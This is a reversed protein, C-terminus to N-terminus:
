DAGHEDPPALDGHPATAPLPEGAPTEGGPASAARHLGALERVRRRRQAGEWTGYRPLMWGPRTLEMLADSLRLLRADPLIAARQAVAGARAELEWELLGLRWQVREREEAVAAVARDVRRREYARQRCAQGCYLRPRGTAAHAIPRGCRQCARPRRCRRPDPWGRM